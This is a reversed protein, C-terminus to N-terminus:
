PRLRGHSRGALVGGDTWIESIYRAPTRDFLPPLPRHPRPRGTFKSRGVVVVVPVNARSAERALARTGVKHVVSDDSFVADGGVLVLDASRVVVPGRADPFVRASLGAARFDRAFQRGEGGPLSELVSITDPRLDPPLAAIASLVSQSRSLTVLREVGTPFARRCTAILRPTEERLRLEERRVWARGWRDRPGSGPTRARRRWEGAWRLFTGMAPQAEELARALHRADASTFPVDRRRRPDLVDAVARLAEAGLASAGQSRDLRIRRLANRPDIPSRTGHATTRAAM